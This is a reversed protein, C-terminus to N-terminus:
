VLRNIWGDSFTYGRDLAAKRAERYRNEATKKVGGHRAMYGRCFTAKLVDETTGNAYRNLDRFAEDFMEDRMRHMEQYRDQKSSAAPKGRREKPAPTARLAEVESDTLLVLQAGKAPSGDAYSGVELAEIRYHGIIRHPEGEKNHTVKLQWVGAGGKAPQCAMVVDSRNILANSGRPERKAAGDARGKATHHTILVLCDTQRAIEHAYDMVENIATASNEDKARLVCSLTDLVIVRVPPRTGVASDSQRRRVRAIFDDRQARDTLDPIGHTRDIPLDREGALARYRNRLFSRGEGAVLISAATFTPAIGFFKERLSICILLEMVLLTKGAGSDAVLLAVGCAPLLDPLLWPTESSEISVAEEFMSVFYPRGSLEPARQHGYFIAHDEASLTHNEPAVDAM